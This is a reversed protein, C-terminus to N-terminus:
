WWERCARRCLRTPLRPNASENAGALHRPAPNAVLDSELQIVSAVLTAVM